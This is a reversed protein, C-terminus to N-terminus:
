QSPCEYGSPNKHLYLQHYEEADWWQGAPTIVTSLPANKWWQKSVKETVEKAIKEQDDNHTFIVSCYQTGRDPGQSNLTTPDHMRYFFEILERYTIKRSDYTIRLAEAHGTSGTCVLKYDPNESSGGCYGVRTDILGKAGFAKRFAHEVGWFCGAAVTCKELIDAAATIGGESPAVSLSHVACNTFPRMLTSFYM